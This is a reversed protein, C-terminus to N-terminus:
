FYSEKGIPTSARRCLEELDVENYYDGIDQLSHADSNSLLLLDYKVALAELRARDIALGHLGNDIEIGQIQGVYNEADIPWPFGPHALFKFTLGGPLYLEIIQARPVDAEQGPIILVQGGLHDDVIQKIRHGFDANEHETIAIGDLGKATIAAVIREATELSAPAYLLAEQCHTHLDLKLKM